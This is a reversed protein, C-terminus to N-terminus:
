LGSFILLTMKIIASIEVADNDPCDNFLIENLRLFTTSRAMVWDEATFYAWFV